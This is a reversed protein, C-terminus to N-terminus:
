NNKIENELDERIKIFEDRLKEKTLNKMSSQYRFLLSDLVCDGKVDNVITEFDTNLFQYGIPSSRSMRM